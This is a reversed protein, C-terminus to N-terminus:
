RASRPALPPSSSACAASTRRRPVQERGDAPQQRHPSPAPQGPARPPRLAPAPRDGRERGAPSPSPQRRVATTAASPSSSRGRSCRPVQAGAQREQLLDARARAHRADPRRPRGPGAAVGGTDVTNHLYRVGSGRWGAGKDDLRLVATPTPASSASYAGDGDTAQMVEPEIRYGSRPEMRPGASCLRRTSGAPQGHESPAGRRPRPLVTTRRSPAAASSTATSTPTAMSSGDLVDLPAHAGARPWNRSSGCRAGGHRGRPASPRRSRSPPGRPSRCHSLDFAELATNTSLLAALLVVDRDFLRLGALSLRRVAGGSWDEVPPPTSSPTLLRLRRRAAADRVAHALQIPAEPPPPPTM